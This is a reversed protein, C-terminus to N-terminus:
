YHILEMEQGCIEALGSRELEKLIKQLIRDASAEDKEIVAFAITAKQWLDHHAAEACSVPFRARCRGLLSKVVSRKQKLNRSGHIYLDVQLVGVVM